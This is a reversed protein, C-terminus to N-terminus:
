IQFTNSRLCPGLSVTICRSRCQVLGLLRVYTIM